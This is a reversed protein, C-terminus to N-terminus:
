TAGGKAKARRERLIAMMEAEALRDPARTAVAGAPLDAQAGEVQWSRLATLCYAWSRAKRCEAWALALRVRSLGGYAKAAAKVKRGVGPDGAFLASAKAVAERVEEPTARRTAEAMGDNGREGKLSDLNETTTTTRHQEPSKEAGGEGGSSSLLSRREGGPIELLPSRTPAIEPGADACPIAGLDPGRDPGKFLLVLRRRTRLGYDLVRAVYGLDILRALVVQVARVKRGIRNAITRTAQTVNHGVGERVRGLEDLVALVRVDAASLRPDSLYPKATAM